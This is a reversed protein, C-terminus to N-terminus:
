RKLNNATELMEDSTTVAKSNVEYARQAVIMNVMEEVVQVNSMEVYKQLITGSGEEGPVVVVPDGSAETEKLLNGGISELGAANIFQAIELQGLDEIDGDANTVTVTGDAAVALDTSGEPITIQPEVLYGESTVLRGQNDKKFSGDRTYALTGDPMTIQFFGDGRLAMDLDNGTSQLNGTTYVKQIAAERVGLGVQLGTPLQTDAGSTAGAQRVTQYMLDQFDIRSKKFGTTSVNALNNSINDINTQQAIMGTGATWLARMM